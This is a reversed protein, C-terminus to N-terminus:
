INLSRGGDVPIVQGTIYEGNMVLFRVAKAIDEPCGQRKLATRELISAQVEPDLETSPWMIAGPAVGNVRIEPGLEKALSQTIMALGAKAACYVPHEKMPRFAHIDVINIICGNNQKLYPTASQSLFIPAKLNSGMLDDWNAETIKGVPTPYFSSANNVLVDLGGWISAASKVLADLTDIQLLDAQLISASDTRLKNLSNALHTASDASSRYHIVINLGAAHLTRAIEAGIRAAAGTILVTRPVSNNQM